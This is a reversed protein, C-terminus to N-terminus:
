AAPEQQGGDAGEGTLYLRLPRGDARALIGYAELDLM